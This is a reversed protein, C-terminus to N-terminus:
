DLPPLIIKEGPDILDPDGSRLRDRNAEKVRAWYDAVERNTPEGSGGGSAEALRDRAITWLSDGAVVTHTKRGSGPAPGAPSAVPPLVITDGPDILDPDGSRLRDQNAEKVRAWYDAVERNTPEGSGGGPAEALRDRAITWLSDGAVVAHSTEQGAEPTTAGGGSNPEGPEPERPPNTTSTAPTPQYAPPRLGTTSTPAAADGERAQGPAAQPAADSPATTTPATTTPATTSTVSSGSGSRPTAASDTTPTETTPTETTSDPAPLRRPTQGAPDPVYGPQSPETAEEAPAQGAPDPVYGPQSPESASTSPADPAATSSTAQAAAVPKRAPPGMGGRDPAAMAPGSVGLTGGGVMSTALTVAVAHDAVRRVVPITAWSVARVAAPLRTLSALLYLLTTALLWYAMVLGVMRLVAGLVEQVPSALLWPVPEAWRVRLGAFRGLWHLALLAALELGVLGLLSGTRRLPTSRGATGM